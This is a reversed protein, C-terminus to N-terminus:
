KKEKVKVRERIKEIVTRYKDKPLDAVTTIGFADKIDKHIDHHSGLEYLIEKYETKNIREYSKANLEENIFLATGKDKAERYDSEALEGDDDDESGVIGLLASLTRRKLYTMASGYEQHGAKTLTLRAKSQSYQGSAHRLTTIVYTQEMENTIEEQTVSLGYKSLVPRAVKLIADADAYKQKFHSNVKNFKANEFEGQAKAFAAALENQEVSRILSPIFDKPVEALKKDVRDVIQKYLTNLKSDLLNEILDIMTKNEM